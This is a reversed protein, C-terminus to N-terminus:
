DKDRLYDVPSQYKFTYGLKSTLKESSVLKFKFSTDKDFLPPEVGAIKAAENYFEERTPHLPCTGNIIEGWIEHQITHRVIGICDDLHILNVPKTAPGNKVGRKMFRHPNRDAGILGGFRIVTTQFHQDTLLSNEANLCALGSGKEPTLRNLETLTGNNEPYVSTSSIFIVKDIKYQHIFPLLQQVQVPYITEIDPIRQPPINIFLVDTNFFDPDSFEIKDKGLKIVSLQIGEADINNAKETSSVSGNVRHGKTLLAKALPLGLWGLGVISITQSM